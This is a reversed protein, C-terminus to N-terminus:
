AVMAPRVSVEKASSRLKQSCHIDLIKQSHLCDSDGPSDAQSVATTPCESFMASVDRKVTAGDEGRMEHAVGAPILTKLMRSYIKVWVKHLELTYYAEGMVKRLTWFLVDGVVGDTDFM